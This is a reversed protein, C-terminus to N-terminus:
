LKNQKNGKTSKHRQLNELYYNTLFYSIDLIITRHMIIKYTYKSPYVFYLDNPLQTKLNKYLDKSTQTKLDAKINGNCNIEVFLYELIPISNQKSLTPAFLIKKYTFLVRSRTSQKVGIM